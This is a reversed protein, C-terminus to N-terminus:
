KNEREFKWRIRSSGEKAALRPVCFDKAIGTLVGLLTRLAVVAPTKV